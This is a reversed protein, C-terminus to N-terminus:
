VHLREMMLIHVDNCEMHSCAHVKSMATSLSPVKTEPGEQTYGKLDVLELPTVFTVVARSPSSPGGERVSQLYTAEDPVDLNILLNGSDAIVSICTLRIQNM